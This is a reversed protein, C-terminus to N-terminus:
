NGHENILDSATVFGLKYILYLDNSEETVSVSSAALNFLM